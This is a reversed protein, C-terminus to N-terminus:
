TRSTAIKGGGVNMAVSIRGAGYPDGGAESFIIDELGDGNLDAFLTEASHKVTPIGAPFFESTAEDVTIAGTGVIKFQMQYDPESGLTVTASATGSGSLSLTPDNLFHGVRSGIASFFGVLTIAYTRGPVFPVFTPDTVVFSTFRDRGSYSGKLSNRGSIIENPPSTITGATDLV